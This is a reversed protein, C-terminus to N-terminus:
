QGCDCGTHEWHLVVKLPVAGLEEGGAVDVVSYAVDARLVFVICVKRDRDRIACMHFGISKYIRMLVTCGVLGLGYCLACDNVRLSPIYCVFIISM